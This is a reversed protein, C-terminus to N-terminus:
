ADLILGATMGMSGLVMGVVFSLLAASDGPFLDGVLVGVAFALVGSFPVLTLKWKHRALFERM